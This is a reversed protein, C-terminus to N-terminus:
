RVVSYFPEWRGEVLEECLRLKMLKGDKNTVEEVTRKMRFTPESYDWDQDEHAYYCDPSCYLNKESMPTFGEGCELCTMNGGNLM